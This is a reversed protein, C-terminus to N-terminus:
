LESIDCLFVNHDQRYAVKEGNTMAIFSSDLDGAIKYVSNSDANLVLLDQTSSGDSDYERRELVFGNFSNLSNNHVVYTNEFVTYTHEELDYIYTVSSGSTFTIAVCSGAAAFQQFSADASFRVYTTIEPLYYQGVLAGSLDYVSVNVDSTAQNYFLRYMKDETTDIQDAIKKSDTKDTFIESEEGSEDVLIMHNTHISKRYQGFNFWRIAYETQSIPYSWYVSDKDFDIEERKLVDVKNDRFDLNVLIRDGLAEYFMYVNDNCVAYHEVDFNRNPIIGDLAIIEGSDVNCKCVKQEPDDCDYTIDVAYSFYDEGISILKVSSNQVDFQKTPVDTVDEPLDLQIKTYMTVANQLSDPAHRM